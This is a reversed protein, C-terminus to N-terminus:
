EGVCRWIAEAAGRVCRVVPLHRNGCRAHRVGHAIGAITAGNGPSTCRLTPDSSTEPGDQLVSLSLPPKM